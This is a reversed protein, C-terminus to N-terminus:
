YALPASTTVRGDAAVTVKMETFKPPGFKGKANNSFGYGETPIGFLNSDMKQNGNEDHFLMVAYDGPTLNGFLLEVTGAKAAQMTGATKVAVGKAADAKLLQAMITGKDSRVGTVSVALEAAFLSFPTLGAIIAVIGAAVVTRTTNM